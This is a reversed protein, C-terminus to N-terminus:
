QAIAHACDFHATQMPRVYPLLAHELSKALHPDARLTDSSVIAQVRALDEDSLAEALIAVLEGLAGANNQPKILDQLGDPERHSTAEESQVRTRQQKRNLANLEKRIASPAIREGAEIRSLVGKVFDQPTSSASLLYLVSPQLHALTASKASAWVAVRMYAQATRAPIGVEAEVWSLFEGHSLHRKSELLGKGITIVSTVCHRRIRDAQGRLFNAVSSPVSSYDFKCDGSETPTKREGRNAEIQM